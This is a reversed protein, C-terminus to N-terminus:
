RTDTKGNRDFLETTNTEVAMLDKFTDVYEARRNAAQQLVPSLDTQTVQGRAAFVLICTLRGVAGSLLIDKM